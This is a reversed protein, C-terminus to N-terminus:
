YEAGVRAQAPWFRELGAAGAETLRYVGREVREFWGYVDDRLIRAANPMGAARLAAPRTPGTEALHRACALAEQRYATMRAGAPSGGPHPDGSRRAHEGLLRRRRKANQRPRYPLPDVVAEVPRPGDVSVALLGLGLRRCLRRVQPDDPSRAGRVRPVALYVADTLALRDVGQLVLELSFRQKLEVIVPPEDGRVAVVDCGTIEGKVAYGQAELYAKVPLYLDTERM